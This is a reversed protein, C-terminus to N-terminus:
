DSLRANYQLTKPSSHATKIASMNYFILIVFSGYISKYCANIARKIGELECIPCEAIICGFGM